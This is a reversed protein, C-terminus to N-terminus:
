STTLVKGVGRVRFQLFEVINGVEASSYEGIKPNYKSDDCHGRLSLDLRGLTIITDIIPALIKRNEEVEHKHKRNCLLNNEHSSGKIQSFFIAELKPWTSFHRSQVSEHLPDIKKKKVECHARFYSIASPWARFPQSFQNKVRSTKTPFDHGFLVCSSLCYSADESPSYCIWLFCPLWEYKFYRITEPSCFNKEPM